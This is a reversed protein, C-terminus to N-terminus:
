FRYIVRVFGSHGTYPRNGYGTVLGGLWDIRPDGTAPLFGVPGNTDITDFDVIDLKEFYYGFGVGARATFFYQVDATARHWTNEVDPLPIFQNLGALAAVRPGGHVFSNDSDSYDYSFRIDTNRVARLLDLYATVTDVKDDNDLTWNRNRDTWSPDPPPSANRSLQLSSYRDRGYNAGLSVVDTPQVNFGTNWTVVDSEHLGFLEGPRSVPASPDVRYRDRGGGFQAYVDVNDRPMVTVIVAGRTRDRDAEDYYRLTPQTGGPGTILTLDETESLGHVEVLGSGRRRAADFSARVTVWPSTYTDYSVRVINEGVDAFGRGHREVTEHGYGLRVTGWGGPTFAANADFIHRSIDYQHSLGEEIEEPVADFRVYERADFAPTRVDRDNFRYRVTFNVVRSPRSSLNILTNVGRAEADATTRPLAALHPFAAFVVPSNIVPNTTWPILDEDQTQQTLQAVGNLTTRGRLKYLATASVVNQVNSPAMAQRGQAPGNGNSYGSPDYPGLPPALGNSFDTLRVPNDWTLSHIDNMFWSGDWGLRFMGRPNAWSAGVSADNTRQDLPQPLEVANNFAFSAAWPQQGERRASAFRADIDVARTAAYNVAVEATDRRHRLEFPNALSNYISRNAKAQAALAPTSCSAPLAGPACPVGVATGDNVANTPGQVARQATDDLTLTGGNTVYPTRAIYSFNLPVSVWDFDVKIRRSMFAASYRQDRYGVHFANAEFAYSGTQRTLDFTSYAGDRSDRYREFRAEDGDTTTFLGGVDITGTLLPTPVPAAAPAPQPAQAWGPVSALLLAATLVTLRNRM